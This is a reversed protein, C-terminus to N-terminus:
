PLSQICFEVIGLYKHTYTHIKTCVCIRTYRYVCMCVYIRMYVVAISTASSGCGPPSAEIIFDHIYLCICVSLSAHVCLFSTHMRIIMICAYMPMIMIYAYMPMQYIWAYSCSIHMCIIMTYAHMPMHYVCSYWVLFACM